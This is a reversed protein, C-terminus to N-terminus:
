AKRLGANALSVVDLRLADGEVEYGFEYRYRNIEPDASTILARDRPLTDYPGHDAEAPRGEAPDWFRHAWFPEDGECHFRLENVLAAAKDLEFSALFDDIEAATFGDPRLVSRIRDMPVAGSSWTGVLPDSEAARALTEAKTRVAGAEESEDGDGGCAAAVLAIVAAGALLARTWHITNENPHEREKM